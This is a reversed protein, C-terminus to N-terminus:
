FGEWIASCVDRIFVARCFMELIEVFRCLVHFFQFIEREFPVDSDTRDNRVTLGVKREGRGIKVIFDTYLDPTIRM